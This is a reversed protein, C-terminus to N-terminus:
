GAKPKSISPPQIYLPKVKAWHFDDNSNKVSEYTFSALFEGLEYEQNEYNVSEIGNEKLYANISSDSIVFFDNKALELINEKEVSQPEQIIKGEPSYIASYVKNKRADMLILSNKNSSNIKSLIQMSSIGVLKANVQQALVRSITTCVRIGTFSGPGINTGIVDIDKMLVRQAKLIEVIAPMLFASHYKEDTSKITKKELLIGNESFTIYTKDLTTDFTLIKM